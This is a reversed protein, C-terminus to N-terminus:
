DLPNTPKPRYGTRKIDHKSLKRAKLLRSVADIDTKYDKRKKVRVFAVEYGLADCLKILSHTTGTGKRIRSLTALELDSLASIINMSLDELRFLTDLRRRFENFAEQEEKTFQKLPM